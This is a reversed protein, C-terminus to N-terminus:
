NLDLYPVNRPVATTEKKPNYLYVLLGVSFFINKAIDFVYTLFWYPRLHIETMNNIMIYFFFTGSLYIMIGIIFWFSYNSYVPLTSNTKLQEYLFYFIYVLIMITEVGIPVSDLMKPPALLHYTAQFVVFAASVGIIVKKFKPSQVSSYLVLSFAISDVLTYVLYYANGLLQVSERFFFNLLFVFLSYIGIVILPFVAKRVFLIFLVPFLLCSYILISM